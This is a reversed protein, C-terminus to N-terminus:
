LVQKFIKLYRRLQQKLKSKWPIWSGNFHHIAYTNSTLHIQGTSYDKPCFFDKPYIIMGYKLEQKRGNPIFGHKALSIETIYYVNSKCNYTGDGNNFLISSYIELQDKIWLNGKEAGIIGTPIRTNSEFGTFAHLCLFENIPKIIEVDTDLYIGGQTYLVFLRVVDSVFAYKKADYAERAYKYMDLDFNEEDWKIIEYDPCFRKWSDICKIVLKPMKGEGFWCYHLKKPIYM